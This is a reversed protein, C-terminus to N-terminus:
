NLTDNIMRGLAFLRQEITVPIECLFSTSKQRDEFIRTNWEIKQGLEEIKTADANANDQLERIKLTDERIAQALQKQKRSFRELGNLVDSRQRNLNDFLGAFLQKAKMEKEAPSGTIFAVIDTKADELSTRRASLKDIVARSQASPESPLPTSEITPGSWVAAMSLEPVKLQMCPWDPYRKDAASTVGATLTACLVVAGALSPRL